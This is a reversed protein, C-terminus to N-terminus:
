FKNKDVFKGVGWIAGKLWLRMGLWGRRNFVFCQRGSQLHVNLISFCKRKWETCVYIQSAITPFTPSFKLAHYDSNCLFCKLPINLELILRMFYLQICVNRESSIRPEDVVFIRRGVDAKKEICRAHWSSQMSASLFIRGIMMNWLTWSPNHSIIYWNIQWQLWGFGRKKGEWWLVSVLACM